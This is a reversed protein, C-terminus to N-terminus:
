LNEYNINIACRPLDTSTVSQHQISGDFLLMRNEVCNVKDVDKLITFGNCPTVYFLAVKHEVERDVHLEHYIHEQTPVLIYSRIDFLRKIKLKNLIPKVVHYYKDFKLGNDSSYLEHSYIWDNDKYNSPKLKPDRVIGKQHYWTFNNSNNLDKPFFTSIIVDFDEKELFNDIIEHSM